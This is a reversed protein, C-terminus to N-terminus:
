SRKIIITEGAAGATVVTWGTEVAGAVDAGTDGTAVGGNTTLAFVAQGVTAATTSTVYFAGRTAITLTEDKAITLTGESLVDYNPYVINREVLGIPAGTGGYNADLEPDTGLWVFTGAIIDTEATLSQSYYDFTNADARSGPVGIAVSTYVQSQLPM